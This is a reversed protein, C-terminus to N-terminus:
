GLMRSVVKVRSTRRSAPSRVAAAAHIEQSTRTAFGNVAVHAGVPPVVLNARERLVIPRILNVLARKQNRQRPQERWLVHPDALGHRRDLL